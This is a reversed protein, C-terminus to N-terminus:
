LVIEGGGHVIVVSRVGTPGPAIAVPLSAGGLWRKLRDADGSLAIGALRPADVRHDARAAGPHEVGVAWEIFFPLTPERAAEDIGATRWRLTRGDPTTRSGETAELGLRACVADIDDTRVVWGM